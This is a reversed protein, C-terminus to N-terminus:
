SCTRVAEAGTVKSKNKLTYVATGGVATIAKKRSIGKIKTM